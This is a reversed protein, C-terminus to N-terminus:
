IIKAKIFLETMNKKIGDYNLKIAAPRATVIIDYSGKTKPQLDRAVERMRRKLQNRATAKKAVKKSTVATIRSYGRRSFLYSLSFLASSSHQGRRYITQFEKSNSVRYIKKLM